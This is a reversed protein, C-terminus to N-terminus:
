WGKEIGIDELDVLYGLEPVMLDAGQSSPIESAAKEESFVMSSVQAQSPSALRLVSLMTLSIWVWFKCYWLYPHIMLGFKLLLYDHM